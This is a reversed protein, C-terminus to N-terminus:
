PVEPPGLEDAMVFVAHAIRGGKPGPGKLLFRFQYDGAEPLTARLRTLVGSMPARVTQRLIEAGSPSQLLFEGPQGWSGCIAYVSHPKGADAPPVAIRWEAGTDPASAPENQGFEFAWHEEQAPNWHHHYVRRM